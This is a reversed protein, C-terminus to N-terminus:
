PDLESLVLLNTCLKDLLINTESWTCPVINTTEAAIVKAKTASVTVLPDNGDVTAASARKKTQQNSEIPKKAM